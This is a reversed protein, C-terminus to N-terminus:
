ISPGFEELYQLGLDVYAQANKHLKEIQEASITKVVRAPTGMVVSYAPVQMGETVLAHAGVICFDGIVSGNLVTAHMGILVHNGLQAGHIIAGHGVICDHGTQVPFGPDVHVIAGDQINTREGLIVADADARIVASYWVSCNNGLSVNGILRATDAIWVDNGKQITSKLNEM